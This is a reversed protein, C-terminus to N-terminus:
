DRNPGAESDAPPMVASEPPAEASIARRDADTPEGVIGDLMRAWGRRVLFAVMQGLQDEPSTGPQSTLKLLAEIAAKEGASVVDTEKYDGLVEVIRDPLNRAGARYAELVRKRYLAETETEYRLRAVTFELRVDQLLVRRLPKYIAALGVDVRSEGLKFSAISAGAVAPGL